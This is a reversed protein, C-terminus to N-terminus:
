KFVPDSSGQEGIHFTLPIIDYVNKGLLDYYAKLNYFLAKKNGILFNQELHNHIRNTSAPESNQKLNPFFKLRKDFNNFKDSNNASTEIFSSFKRYATLSPGSLVKRVSESPM